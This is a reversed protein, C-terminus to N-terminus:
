LIEDTIEDSNINIDVRWKISETDITDVMSDEVSFPVPPTTLESLSNIIDCETM